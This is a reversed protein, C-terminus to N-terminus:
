VARLASKPLTNPTCILCYATDEAAGAFFVPRLIVAAGGGNLLALLVFTGMFVVEGCIRLGARFAGDEVRGGAGNGVDFLVVAAVRLALSFSLRGGMAYAGSIETGARFASWFKM